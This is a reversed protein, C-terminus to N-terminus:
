KKGAELWAAYHAACLYVDLAFRRETCGGPHRCQGFDARPPVYAPQPGRKTRVPPPTELARAQRGLEGAGWTSEGVASVELRVRDPEGMPCQEQAYEWQLWGPKDNALGLADAVGDRYAKLAGRLNDDDLRRPAVRTLRAVLLVKDELLRKLAIHAGGRQKKARGARSGWHERLNSASPVAVRAKGHKKVVVGPLELELLKM